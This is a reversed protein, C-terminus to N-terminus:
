KKKGAKKKAKKKAKAKELKIAKAKQKKKKLKEKKKKAKAKKKKGKVKEKAKAAKAKKGKKEKKEKKEKVPATVDETAELAVLEPAAPVGENPTAKEEPKTVERGAPEAAQIGAQPKGSTRGRRRPKLATIEDPNNETASVTDGQIGPIKEDPNGPAGEAANQKKNAM